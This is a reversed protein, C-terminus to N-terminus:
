PFCYSTAVLSARTGHVQADLAQYWLNVWGAASPPADDPPPANIHRVMELRTGGGPAPTAVVSQRMVKIPEPGSHLNAKLHIAALAGTADRTVAGRWWVHFPFAREIANGNPIEKVAFSEDYGSEVGREAECDVKPLDPYIALLVGPQWQVAAWVQDLTADVVARGHAWALSPDGGSALRSGSVVAPAGPRDPWTPWESATEPTEVDWPTTGAAFDPSSTGCGAVLLAVALLRPLRTM